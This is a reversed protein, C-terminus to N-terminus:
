RQLNEMIVINAIDITIIIIVLKAAFRVGIHLVHKYIYVSM